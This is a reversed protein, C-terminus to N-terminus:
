SLMSEILPFIESPEFGVAKIGFSIDTQKWYAITGNIVVHGETAYDVPGYKYFVEVTRLTTRQFGDVVPEARFNDELVAIRRDGSAYYYTTVQVLRPDDPHLRSVSFVPQSGLDSPLKRPLILAFPLEAQVQQTGKTLYNPGPAVPTIGVIPTAPSADSSICASAGLISLIMLFRVIM